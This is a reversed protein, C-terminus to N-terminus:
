KKTKQNKSKKAILEHYEIWSNVNLTDKITTLSTKPATSFFLKKNKLEVNLGLSPIM